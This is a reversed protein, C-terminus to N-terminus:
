ADPAFHDLLDDSLRDLRPAETWLIAAEVPRGPFAQRALTRYLAMQALYEPATGEPGEPPPRNTKFDVILARDQSLALRDIVGAYRKGGIEGAIPAEALTDPAFVAQFVPDDLLALVDAVLRAREAAPLAGDREIFADAHRPRDAAALNPLRELLRHILLGRGFRRAEAARRGTRALPSLAAPEAALMGLRSPALAPGPDARAPVPETLWAEPAAASASPPMPAEAEGYAVGYTGPDELVLRAAAVDPDPIEELTAGSPRDTKLREFGAEVFARWTEDHGGRRNAATWGAVYLRDEARTMAVYLLRRKEAADAAAQMERLRRVAEADQQRRPAGLLPTNGQWFLRRRSDTPARMVDPLFVIPAQLGKASHATLLRVGAAAGELERKVDAQDREVWALFGALSPPRDAGYALALALFEDLVDTVAAGMNAILRARGQRPGLAWQFFDFPPRYDANAMAESVLDWAAVVAAPADAASAALKLSRWLPRRGRGHAIEFLVGEDIQCLPSKLLSALALDDEPLTAAQALAMLDRVALQRSLRMRDVGATPVGRRKLARALADAFPARQQVVVMVDGPKVRRGQPHEASTGVRVDPDRILREIEAAIREALLEPAKVAASPYEQLPTWADGAEAAQAESMRWLEVRGPLGARSADHKTPKGDPTVGAAATPSAFTADVAALVAPVSRFSVPLDIAVFPRQGAFAAADFRDKSRDFEAPDARQFSFISQKPDGVAFVTRDRAGDDHFFEGALAHVIQWQDPNTDQAEDVLIHDLGQDLKYLAWAAGGDSELLARTKLILDDFDLAARARKMRDYRREVDAALRLAALTDLAGAGARATDRLRGAYAALDAHQDDFWPNADRVGKTAPSKNPDGEGRATFFAGTLADLRTRREEPDFALWAAIGNAKGQDTAKGAALADALRKLRAAIDPSPTVPTSTAAEAEAETAFGFAALVSAEPDDLAGLRAREALLARLVHDLKDEAGRLAMRDLARALPAGAEAAMAHRLTLDRAETLLDAAAREDLAAFGPPVGAEAPFRELAAQCFSHVTQVKLGGPADVVDAFLSRARNVDAVGPNRDILTKLEGHLADPNAAAWRGLTEVIRNAMEAAAAKTFTLCLIRDPAGFALMLRLARDSLVKTKGSGASADVWASTKPDSGAAQAYTARDVASPGLASM